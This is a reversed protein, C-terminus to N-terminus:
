LTKIFKEIANHDGAFCFVIRGPETRFVLRVDLGVRCEFCNYKLSRIGIGSHLHPHGLSEGVKDIARAIECRTPKDYERVIRRFRGMLEIQM